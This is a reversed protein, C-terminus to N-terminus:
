AANYLNFSPEEIQNAVTKAEARLNDDELPTVRSSRLPLTVSHNNLNANTKSACSNADYYKKIGIYSVIIMTLTFIIPAIIWWKDIAEEGGVTIPKIEDLTRILSHMDLQPVDELISLNWQQSFNPHTKYLPEWIDYTNNDWVQKATNIMKDALLETSSRFEYYPPLIIYDSSAVCNPNLRILDLPPKIRKKKTKGNDCSITFIITDITSIAWLGQSIHNARPLIANPYILTRCLDSVKNKKNQFLAIVCYKNVNMSYIPSTFHCYAVDSRACNHTEEDNLIVYKTEEKNVGIARAELDFKATMHTNRKLVKKKNKYMAANPVAMNHVNFVDYSDAANILPINMIIYIQETEFTTVCVVDKYFEWIDNNLDIHLKLHIPLQKQIDRLLQKLQVPKIISPTARGMALINVKTELDDMFHQIDNMLTRANDNIAQLRIYLNLFEQIEELGQRSHNNLGELAEYIEGIGVNLENVRKRNEMVQVHTMNLFTLGEKVVHHLKVQNDAMGKIAQRINTLQDEDVFGFAWSFLKSVGPIIARKNRHRISKFGEFVQQIRKRTLKLHNLQENLTSFTKTFKPRTPDGHNLITDYTVQAVETLYKLSSDLMDQYPKLDIILTAKWSSRSITVESVKEFLVNQRTLLFAM